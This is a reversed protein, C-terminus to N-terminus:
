GKWYKRLVSIIREQEKECSVEKALSPLFRKMEIYLDDDLLLRSVAEAMEREDDVFQIGNFGVCMEQVVDLSSFVVTPLGATVGEFIGRGFTEWNSTSLNVDMEQLLSAVEEQRLGIHMFVSDILGNVQIFEEMMDLLDQDQLTCVLHLEAEPVLHKVDMLVRLAALNNKQKKISATYVIKYRRTHTSNCPSFCPNIGRYIVSVKDPDVSYDNILDRKEAFSPTIIHHVNSMVFQEQATYEPPVVEGSKVYSSTCFMPFLLTKDWFEKPYDEFGFFKSVHATIILGYGSYDGIAERNSDLNVMRRSFKNNWADKYKVYRVSNVHADEFTDDQKRIFVVDLDYRYKLLDILQHALVSGGDVDFGYGPFKGLYLLAKM